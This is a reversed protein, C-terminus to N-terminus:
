CSAVCYLPLFAGGANEVSKQEERETPRAAKPQATARVAASEALHNAYFNLSGDAEM